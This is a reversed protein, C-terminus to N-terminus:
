TEYVKYSRDTENAVRPKRIHYLFRLKSLLM